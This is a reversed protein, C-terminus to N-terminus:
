NKLLQHRLDDKSHQCIFKVTFDIHYKMLQKQTLEVDILSNIVLNYESDDIDNKIKETVIGKSNLLILESDDVLLIASPTHDLNDNQEISKILLQLFLPLDQFNLQEILM